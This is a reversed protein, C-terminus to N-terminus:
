LDRYVQGRPGIASVLIAANADEITFIIRWVGVRAAHNGGPGTLQKSHPGRPGAAIQELREAIRRRAEEGLRRLYARAARSFRLEYNM